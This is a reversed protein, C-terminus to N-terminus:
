QQAQLGPALPPMGFSSSRMGYPYKRIVLFQQAVQAPIQVVKHNPLRIMCEEGGRQHYRHPFSRTGADEMGAELTFRLSIGMRMGLNNLAKVLNADRSELGCLSYKGASLPESEPPESYIKWLNSRDMLPMNGNADPIPDGHPDWTPRGLFEALRDALPISRVHEMEEALDHIEESTFGLRQALFYEWLRHRRIVHYALYFGSATLTAGQYPTYHALGNQSLKLLMDTVSSAKAKLELALDNTGVPYPLEGQPLGGFDLGSLRFM